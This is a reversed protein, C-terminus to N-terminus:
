STLLYFIWLTVVTPISFRLVAKQQLFPPIYGLCLYLIMVSFLPISFPNLAIAEKMKLQGITLFARTMGCGPCPIGTIFHFSCLSVRPLYHITDVEWFYLLVGSTIVLSFIVGTAIRMITDPALEQIKILKMNLM